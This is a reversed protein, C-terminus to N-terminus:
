LRGCVCPSSNSPRGVTAAPLGLTLSYGMQNLSDSVCIWKMCLHVELQLLAALTVLKLTLQKLTLKEAPAWTKLFSLVQNVDWTVFYKPEPPCMSYVGKMFKSMLPHKGIVIRDIPQHFNLIKSRYVGTTHYKYGKHLLEPLFELIVNLSTSFPDVQRQDCWSSWAKWASEYQCTTKQRWSAQLINSVEESFGQKSPYGTVPGSFQSTTKGFNARLSIERGSESNQTNENRAIFVENGCHRNSVRPIGAESHTRVSIERSKDSLRAERMFRRNAPGIGSM